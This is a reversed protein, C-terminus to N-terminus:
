HLHKVINAFSCVGLSEWLFLLKIFSLQQRVFPRRLGLFDLLQRIMKNSRLFIFYRIGCSCFKCSFVKVRMEKAPVSTGTVPTRERDLRVYNNTLLILLDNGKACPRVRSATRSFASKSCRNTTLQQGKIIRCRCCCALFSNRLGESLAAGLCCCCCCWLYNRLFVYKLSPARNPGKPQALFLSFICVGCACSKWRDPGPLTLHTCYRCRRIHLM